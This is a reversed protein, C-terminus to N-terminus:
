LHGGIIENQYVQYSHAVEYSKYTHRETIVLWPDESQGCVEHWRMYLWAWGSKAGALALIYWLTLSHLCSSSMNWM